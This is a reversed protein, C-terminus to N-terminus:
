FPQEALPQLKVVLEEKNRLEAAFYAKASNVGHDYVAKWLRDYHAVNDKWLIHCVLDRKKTYVMMPGHEQHVGAGPMSLVDYPLQVKIVLNKASGSLTNKPIHASRHHAAPTPATPIQLIARMFDASPQLDPTSKPFFPRVSVCNDASFPRCAKKHSAWHAKQCAANCYRATRCKGCMKLTESDRAMAGCADCRKTDEMPRTEGSRKRLWKQMCAVVQPGCKIMFNRPSVGDADMLDADAGHEMLLDVSPIMNHQFCLLLAVEGYRNRYNVDAGGKEILIRALDIRATDNMTVHQLASYGVIDPKDVPAGMSLLYELTAAHTLRGRAGELRQGGSVTLTIYGFQYPTETGEIDPANGTEVARKVYDVEGLYCYLGFANLKRSDFCGSNDVYLNRLIQGGKQTSLYGPKELISRM